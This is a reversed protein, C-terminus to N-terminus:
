SSLSLMHPCMFIRGLEPWTMGPPDNELITSDPVSQVSLPQRSGLGPDSRRPRGVERQTEQGSSRATVAGERSVGDSGRGRLLNSARPTRQLPFKRALSCQAKRLHVQDCIGEDHFIVSPLNMRM